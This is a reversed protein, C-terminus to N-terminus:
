KGLLIRAQAIAADTIRSGSLMKAIETIREEDTLRAIGTRGDRKYVVFHAAGKSAVQPLHTIDVVQLTASLSEIIEGMADAIRGSVGTDIEDFIVTPLQMRRALLSKLALMVRSLEGGSAIREVSQPTANRNASFLFAVGDRGTRGLDPLPTLTVKFVTEPMGLQALTELIQKEFAPAAKARAKHLRDALAGAKQAAADLEKEAAAIEEDGHVIAALQAAYSDRAAILETESAVRHKQQLAYLADLRAALKALREPDADLRESDAAANYIDKLEELVSHLRAAYEGAAPFHERIRTLDNESNKLLTLMGTEDADLANRLTTLVEGIRDANELVALEEEIAAQEGERLNAATLEESQFRLWEEDRRGGAAAERLAALRRRLETLRTYQAAYQALLEGNGAVTDLASTRFEESSLILNQHQSHIDILRTGFERLQALQVPLDNIFARSKGAPTIMRTVTTEPAYDLDNGAFFAEMDRGSLDFTGEVVCNRAADKMASGDNKAGLLLGLAGLLISKGAGTEGTIINLHPDLEMELKDILVYNEVSLRRLM